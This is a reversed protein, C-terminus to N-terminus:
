SPTEWTVGADTSRQFLGGACNSQDFAQYQFHHGPGSTKDITFWQKDGGIAGQKGSILDWTAGGNTSRWM